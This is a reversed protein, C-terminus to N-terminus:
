SVVQRLLTSTIETVVTSAVNIFWHHTMEVTAFRVLVFEAPQPLVYSPPWDCFIIRWGRQNPATVVFRLAACVGENGWSSPTVKGKVFM